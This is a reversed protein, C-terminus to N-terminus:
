FRWTANLYVDRDIRQRQGDVPPTLQGRWRWRAAIDFQKGVRWRYRFEALRDNDRFDSSLLFGGPVRGLVIGAMHKKQAGEVDAELQWALKGDSSPSPDVYALEGGLLWRAGGEGLPWAAVARTSLQAYDQSGTGDPLARPLLDLGVARQVLPGWAERSDWGVFGAVRAGGPAFDM